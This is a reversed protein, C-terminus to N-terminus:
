SDLEARLRSGANLRWGQDLLGTIEGWDPEGDLRVGLWGRTGLYPPVFYHEPASSVLAEQEGPPAKVWVALRGDDHHNVLLWAFRKGRVFFGVHGHSEEASTGPLDAVITRLREEAARRDQEGWGTM